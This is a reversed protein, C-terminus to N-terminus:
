VTNLKLVVNKQKFDNWDSEWVYKIIHNKNKIKLLRKFTSEYLEGFTKNINRNLDKKNYKKPNGHWYDGLFEYIINEKIGDVCYGCVYQQRNKIDVGMFDLFETEKKSIFNKLSNEYGCKKCGRNSLHKNPTQLFSGHIKCIIEIKHHSNIYISKDYSYKNNHIINSKIIFDFTNRIRKM